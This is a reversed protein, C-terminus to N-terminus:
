APRNTRAVSMGSLIGAAIALPLLTSPLVTGYYGATPAIISFFAAVGACVLAFVQVGQNRRLVLVLIGATVSALAILLLLIAFGSMGGGFGSLACMVTWAGMVLTLVGSTTRVGTNPKQPAGWGAHAYPQGPYPYPTHQPPYPQQQDYGQPAYQHPPGYPPQNGPVPGYQGQPPYSGQGPTPWADHPHHPAPPVPPVNETL